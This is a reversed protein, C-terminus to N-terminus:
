VRAYLTELRDEADILATYLRDLIADLTSYSPGDDAASYLRLEEAKENIEKKLSAILAKQKQIARM